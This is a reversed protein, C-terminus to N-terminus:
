KVATVTATTYSTSHLVLRVCQVRVIDSNKKEGVTAVDGTWEAIGCGKQFWGSSNEDEIHVPTSIHEVM